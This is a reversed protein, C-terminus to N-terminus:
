NRRSLLPKNLDRPTKSLDRVVPQVKLKPHSISKKKFQMEVGGESERGEDDDDEEFGVPTMNRKQFPSKRFKSFLDPKPDLIIEKNMNEFVIDCIYSGVADMQTISYIFSAILITNWTNEIFVLNLILIVQVKNM